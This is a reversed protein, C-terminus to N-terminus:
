PEPLLDRLKIIKDKLMIECDLNSKNLQYIQERCKGCPSVLNEKNHIAVLKNIKTVGDLLMQGIVITEACFGVNCTTKFSIGKYVKGNDAECAVAVNGYSSKDNIITKKSLSDAIKYLEDFSM